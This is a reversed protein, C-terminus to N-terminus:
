RSINGLNSRTAFKRVVHWIVKETIGTGWVTGYKTVCRFLQGSEIHATTTRRDVAAKVWNPVPVSRIHKM